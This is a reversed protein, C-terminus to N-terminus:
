PLLPQFHQRVEHRKKRFFFDASPRILLCPFAVVAPPPTVPRQPHCPTSASPVPIGLSSSPSVTARNSSIRPVQILEAPLTAAARPAIGMANASASQQRHRRRPPVSGVSCRHVPRPGRGATEQKERAQRSALRNGSGQSAGDGTSRSEDSFTRGGTGFKELSGRKEPRVMLIEPTKTTQPIAPIQPGEDRFAPERRPAPLCRGPECHGFRSM